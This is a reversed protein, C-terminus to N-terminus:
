EAVYLQLFNTDIGEFEEWRVLEAWGLRGFTERYFAIRKVGEFSFEPFSQLERFSSENLSLWPVGPEVVLLSDWEERWAKGLYTHTKLHEVDAIFGYKFRYDIIQRASWGGIGAIAVLSTSDAWNLNVPQVVPEPEKEYERKPWTRPYTRPSYSRAGSTQDPRPEQEFVFTGRSWWLSDKAMGPASSLEELNKFSWSRRRRYDLTRKAGASIPLAQIASSDLKNLNLSDRESWWWHMLQEAERHAEEKPYLFMLGSILATFILTTLRSLASEMPSTIPPNDFNTRRPSFLM